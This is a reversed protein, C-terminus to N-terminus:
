SFMKHFSDDTAQVIHDVEAPGIAAGVFLSEFQSPALYVGNELMYRFYTGFLQTDSTQASDFDVVEESTFFLSYMSGIQNITFSKQYQQMSKQIGAVIKQTIGEVQHYIDPQENLISLITLGAAMAVPNGSLTGAQYVPGSPSVFDM